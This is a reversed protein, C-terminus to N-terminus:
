AAVAAQSRLAAAIRESVARMMPPPVANGLRRWQAGYGGTLEFDPPFGCLAKLEEITPQRREGEITEVFVEQYSRAGLGSALITPAPRYRPWSTESPWLPPREPCLLRRVHPLADRMTRRRPRAPPFAAAPDIGLERRFGVVILRRRAQPVGLWSADLVAHAVDYGAGRLRTMLPYFHARGAGTALHPINEFVLALPGCEEVLRPYEHLLMAADSTMDRRGAPSFSVCPPSGDLLHLVGGPVRELVSAGSVEVVSRRDVHAEPNNLAYVDAANRDNENAYVVAFGAQRHGLSSGGCGAFLSAGYLPATM